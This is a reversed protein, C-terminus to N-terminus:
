RAETSWLRVEVAGLQEDRAEFQRNHRLISAPPDM